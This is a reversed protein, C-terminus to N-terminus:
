RQSKQLANYIDAARLGTRKAVQKSWDRDSLLRDKIADNLQAEQPSESSTKPPLLILVYEGKEVLNKTDLTDLQHWGYEEYQKTIERGVFISGGPFSTQWESVTARVRHPSEFFVSAIGLWQIKKWLAEKIMKQKPAFGLFLFETEKLGAVSVLATVSSAGPIPIVSIGQQRARDVLMSGPDSIAPTGRDCCFAVSQGALLIEIIKDTASKMNHAAFSHFSKGEPSIGLLSLLKRTERTDEAVINPVERLTDVARLTMDRSNGIPTAVMYLQTTDL